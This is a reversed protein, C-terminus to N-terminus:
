FSHHIVLGITQDIFYIFSEEEIRSDVIADLVILGSMRQSPNDLSTTIFNVWIHFNELQSDQITSCMLEVLYGVAKAIVWKHTTNINQNLLLETTSQFLFPTNHKLNILHKLCLNYCASASLQLTDELNPDSLILHISELLM